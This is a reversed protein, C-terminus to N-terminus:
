SVGNPIIRIQGKNSGIPGDPEQLQIYQPWAMWGEELDIVEFMDDAVQASNRWITLVGKIEVGGVVLEVDYPESVDDSFRSQGINNTLNIVGGGSPNDVIDFTWGEKEVREDAYSTYAALCM